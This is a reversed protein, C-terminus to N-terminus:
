QAKARSGPHKDASVAIRQVAELDSIDVKFRQASFVQPILCIDALTPQDGLSYAGSLVSQTVM